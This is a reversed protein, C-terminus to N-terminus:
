AAKIQPKELAKRIAAWVERNDAATHIITPQPLPTTERAVSVPPATDNAPTIDDKRAPPLWALLNFFQSALTIILGIAVMMWTDTWYVVGEGPNRDFSFLSALKKNQVDVSSVTPPTEAVQKTLTEIHSQTAAIMEALKNHETVSGITAAIQDRQQKLALCRPGCGGRREEQRIAETATEFRSQLEHPTVHANFGHSKSMEEYRKKQMALLARKDALQATANSANVNQVSAVHVDSVRHTGTTSSNTIGDLFTVAVAVVVALTKVGYGVWGSGANRSVEVAIPWMYSAMISVVALAGAIGVSITLGFQVTLVLSVIALATGAVKCITLLFPSTIM